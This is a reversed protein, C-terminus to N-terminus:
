KLKIALNFNSFQRMGTLEMLIEQTIFKPTEYVHSIKPLEVELTVLKLNKYVDIEFKLGKYKVVYRTKQIVRAGKSHKAMKDNFEERTIEKEDEQFVGLSISHKITHTYKINIKGESIRYRQWIGDIKLYFQIIKIVDYKVKNTTIVEPLNKLLFKREIELNIKKKKAMNIKALKM